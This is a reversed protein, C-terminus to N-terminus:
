VSCIRPRHLVQAKRVMKEVDLLTPCAWQAM